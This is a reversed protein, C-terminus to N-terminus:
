LRLTLQPQLTQQRSSGVEQRHLRHGVPTLLPQFTGSGLNDEGSYSMCTSLCREWLAPHCPKFNVTYWWVSTVTVCNGGWLKLLTHSFHMLPSNRKLLKDRYSNVIINKLTNIFLVVKDCCIYYADNRCQFIKFDIGREVAQILMTAKPSQKYLPTSGSLFMNSQQYM